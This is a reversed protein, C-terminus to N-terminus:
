IFIFVVTLLIILIGITRTLNIAINSPEANKYKWGYSIYWSSYPSILNWFGIILLIFIFLTNKQSFISSNIESIIDILLSGPIYETENYDSSSGGIGITVGNNEEKSYWYKSKNPYIIEYSSGNIEYEYIDNNYSITQKVTDIIFTKNEKTITYNNDQNCATLTLLLFTILIFSYKRM